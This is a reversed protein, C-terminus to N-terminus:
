NRAEGGAALLLLAHWGPADGPSGATKIAREGALMAELGARIRPLPWRALAAAMTDQERWFVPPRLAKVAQLPQMGGDVAARAEAMQLLRRAMARLALIATGGALLRLQREVARADGAVVAAVLASLDEEASDAGLLALHARELTRPTEPSADLYLAFKALESALVGGDNGTAALLREGVGPELRLGAERAKAQLWGAAERADMTYAVLLRAGAAEEALKRLGSAKSLDGALMLVPNGAAPAELLLRAAELSSDGAGTVRVLKRGGFMSIAAAEDALRGPDSKLEDAALDTLSMPDTADALAAAIQAGAERTGSEDPGALLFLRIEPTWGALVRALDGRKIATM